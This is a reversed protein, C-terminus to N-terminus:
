RAGGAAQGRLPRMAQRVEALREVVVVPVDMGRRKASDALVRLARSAASLFAWSRLELAERVLAEVSAPLPARRQGEELAALLEGPTDIDFTM